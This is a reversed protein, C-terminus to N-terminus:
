GQIPQSGEVMFFYLEFFKRNRKSIMLEFGASLQIVVQRLVPIDALYIYKEQCRFRNELILNDTTSKKFSLKM